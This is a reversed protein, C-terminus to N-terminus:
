FYSKNYYRYSWEKIKDDDDSKWKKMTDDDDTIDSPKYYAGTYGSSEICSDNRRRSSFDM